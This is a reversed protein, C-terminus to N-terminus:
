FSANDKFKGLGNLNSSSNGVRSAGLFIGHCGVKLRNGHNGLSNSHLPVM